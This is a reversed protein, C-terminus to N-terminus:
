FILPIYLTCVYQIYVYMMKIKYFFIWILPITEKFIYNKVIADVFNLQDVLIKKALTIHLIFLNIGFNQRAKTTQNAPIFAESDLLSVNQFITKYKNTNNQSFKSISEFFPFKMFSFSNLWLFNLAFRFFFNVIIHFM